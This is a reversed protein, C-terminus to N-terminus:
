KPIDEKAIFENEHIADLLFALREKEGLYHLAGLVAEFGTAARYEGYSAHAPRSLGKHNFARRYVGTEEETLLPLLKKSLEAQKPATVYGLSLRNLEGAHSVGMRVLRERVYLSYVADGLYSLAMVAPLEKEQM